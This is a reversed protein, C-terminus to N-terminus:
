FYIPKKIFWGRETVEPHKMQSEIHFLLASLATSSTVLTDLMRQIKITGTQLKTCDPDKVEGWKVLM